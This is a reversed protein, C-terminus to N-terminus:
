VRDQIRVAQPPLLHGGLVINTVAACAVSINIFPSHQSIPLGCPRQDESISCAADARPRQLRDPAEDGVREFRGAPRPITTAIAASWSAAKAGASLRRM